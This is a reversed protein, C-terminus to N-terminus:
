IKSHFWQRLSINVHYVFSNTLLKKAWLPGLNLISPGKYPVEYRLRPEYEFRYEEFCFYGILSRLEM